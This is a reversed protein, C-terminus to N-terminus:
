VIACCCKDQQEHEDEGAGGVDVSRRQQHQGRARVVKPVGDSSALIEADVDVSDRLARRLQRRRERELAAAHHANLPEIQAASSLGDFSASHKLSLNDSSLAREIQDAVDVFNQEESKKASAIEIEKHPPEPEPEIEIAVKKEMKVVPQLQAPQQQQQKEPVLSVLPLDDTEKGRPDFTAIGPEFAVDVPVRRRAEAYAVLRVVLARTHVAAIRLRQSGDNFRVDLHLPRARLQLAEIDAYPWSLKRYGVRAADLQDRGDADLVAFSDDRLALLAAHLTGNPEKLLVPLPDGDSPVAADVPCAVLYQLLAAAEDRKASGAFTRLHYPQAEGVVSIELATSVLGLLAKEKSVGSVCSLTIRLQLASLAGAWCAYRPTIFLRGQSPLKDGQRWYACRYNQVVVERADLEFINRVM